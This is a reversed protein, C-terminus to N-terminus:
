SRLEIVKDKALSPDLSGSTLLGHVSRVIGLYDDHQQCSCGCLYKGNMMIYAQRREAPSHRITVLFKHGAAAPRKRTPAARSAATRKRTPAPEEGAACEAAIRHHCRAAPVNELNHMAEDSSENRPESPKSEQSACLDVVPGPKKCHPCQCSVECVEVNSGISDHQRLSRRPPPPSDDELVADPDNEPETQEEDRVMPLVEKLQASVFTTRSRHLLLVHYCLLKLHDACTEAWDVPSTTEMSQASMIGFKRHLDLYVMKLLNHNPFCRPAYQLIILLLAAYKELGQMDPAQSRRSKPYHVLEWDIPCASAKMGALPSLAAVLAHADFYDNRPRSRKSPPMVLFLIRQIFHSRHTCTQDSTLDIMSSLEVDHTSLKNGRERSSFGFGCVVETHALM